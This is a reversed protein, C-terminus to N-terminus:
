PILLRRGFSFLRGDFILFFRTSRIFLPIPSFNIKPRITWAHRLAGYIELLLLVLGM